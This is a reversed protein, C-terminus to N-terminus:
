GLFGLVIEFGNLTWSISCTSEFFIYQTYLLMTFYLSHRPKGHSCRIKMKLSVLNFKGIKVLEEGDVSNDRIHITVM